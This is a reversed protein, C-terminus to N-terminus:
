RGETPAVSEVVWALYDHDGGIVDLAVIEPVEYSHVARIRARLADLRALATKIVLLHEASEEVGGRWRYISLMPPLVNVCAALGDDVLARAITAAEDHSPATTLVVTCTSPESGM